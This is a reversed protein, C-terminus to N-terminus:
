APMPMPKKVSRIFLGAVPNCGEEGNGVFFAKAEAPLNIDIVRLSVKDGAKLDVSFADKGSFTAPYQTSGQAAVYPLVLTKAENENVFVGVTMSSAADGATASMKTFFRIFYSGDKQATFAGDKYELGFVMRSTMSSLTGTVVETQEAPAILIARGMSPRGFAHGRGPHRGNGPRQSGDVPKQWGHHWGRGERGCQGRVPETTGAYCAGVVVLSAIFSFFRM